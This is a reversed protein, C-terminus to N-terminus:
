GARGLENGITQDLTTAAGQASSLWLLAADALGTSMGSQASGHANNV